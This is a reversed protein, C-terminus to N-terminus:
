NIVIKADEFNLKEIIPLLRKIVKILEGNKSLCWNGGNFWILFHSEKENTLELTNGNKISKIQENTLKM